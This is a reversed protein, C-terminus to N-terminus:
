ENKNREYLKLDKLLEDEKIGLYSCVIEIIDEPKDKYGTVMGLKKQIESTLYNDAELFNPNNSYKEGM